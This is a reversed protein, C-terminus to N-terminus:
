HFSVALFDFALIFPLPTFIKPMFLKNKLFSHSEENRFTNKILFHGLGKKGIIFDLCAGKRAKGFLLRSDITFRDFQEKFTGFPLQLQKFCKPWFTWLMQQLLSCTVNYEQFLSKLECYCCMHCTSRNAHGHPEALLRTRFAQLNWFAQIVVNLFGKATTGSLFFFFCCQLQTIEYDLAIM